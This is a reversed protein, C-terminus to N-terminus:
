VFTINIGSGNAQSLSLFDSQEISDPLKINVSLDSNCDYFMFTYDTCSSLDLVGKIETLSRCSQFTTKFNTVNSTDWNSLDLSTLAYNEYFMQHMDTVSSVDFPVTLTALSYDRFFAAATTITALNLAPIELSTLASYYSFAHYLSTVSIDYRALATLYKQQGAPLETVSELEEDTLYIQLWYSLDVSYDSDVAPGYVGDRLVAPLDTFTNFLLEQQLM